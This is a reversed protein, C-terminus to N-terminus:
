APGEGQKAAHRTKSQRVRDLGVRDRLHQSILKLNGPLQGATNQHNHNARDNQAPNLTNSGGGTGDNRCHGNGIHQHAQNNNTQVYLFHGAGQHGDNVTREIASRGRTAKRARRNPCRDAKTHGAPYKGILRSQTARRDGM